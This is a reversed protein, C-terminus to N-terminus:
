QKGAEVPVAKAPTPATKEKRETVDAVAAVAVQPAPAKPKKNPCDRGIHGWMHCKRCKVPKVGAPPEANAPVSVAQGQSQSGTTTGAAMQYAQVIAQWQPCQKKFHAGGCKWCTGMPPTYQTTQGRAPQVQRAQQRTESKEGATVALSINPRTQPATYTQGASFRRPGAAGTQQVYHVAGDGDVRSRRAHGRERVTLAQLEGYCLIVAENVTTPRHRECEYLLDPHLGECYMDVKQQEPLTGGAKEYQEVYRRFKATYSPLEQLTRMEGTGFTLETLRQMWHRKKNKKGYVKDVYAVLKAYTNVPEPPNHVAAKAPGTLKCMLMRRKLEEGWHREQAVLEFEFIWDDFDLQDDEGSFSELTIKQRELEKAMQVQESDERPGQLATLMTAMRFMAKEEESRVMGTDELEKALQEQEKLLQFRRMVATQIGPKEQNSVGKVPSTKDGKGPSRGDPSRLSTGASSQSPKGDDYPIQELNPVGVLEIKPANVRGTAPSSTGADGNEDDISTDGGCVERLRNRWVETEAALVRHRYDLLKRLKAGSVDPLAVLENTGPVWQCRKMLEKLEADDTASKDEKERVELKDTSM